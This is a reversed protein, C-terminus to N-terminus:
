NALMTNLPAPNMQHLKYSAKKFTEKDAELLTSFIENMYDKITNMWENYHCKNKM